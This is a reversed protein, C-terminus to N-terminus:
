SWYGCTTVRSRCKAGRTSGSGVSAATSADRQSTWALAAIAFSQFALFLLYSKLTGSDPLLLLLAVM